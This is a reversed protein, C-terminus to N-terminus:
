ARSIAEPAKRAYYIGWNVVRVIAFGHKELVEQCKALNDENTAEFIIKLHPNRAITKEAGELVEGDAGEADIKIFSVYEIQLHKLIDDLKLASVEVFDTSVPKKVSHDGPLQALYLKLKENKNWCAANVLTVNSLRNLKINAKLIEFNCSEPEISIVRGNDGVQRAVKITYKGINAGVDVFIGQTIEEFYRRLPHEFAEAVIRADDTGKRCLFKGDHNEITVDFNPNSIRRFVAHLTPIKSSGIAFGLLRIITGPFLILKDKVGQGETFLKLWYWLRIVTSRLKGFRGNDQGMKAERASNTMIAVSHTVGDPQNDKGM